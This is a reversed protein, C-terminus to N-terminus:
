SASRRDWFPSGAWRREIGYYGARTTLYTTCEEDRADEYTALATSDGSLAAIATDAAVHATRLARIVGSGSIPDVSLAADGVALWRSQAGDTRVLRQSVASFARPGWRLPGTGVRACTTSALQLARRWRDGDTAVASRVLDGDAMLMAVSRDARVPASYWWGDVTTEVLTYCNDGALPDDIVAAVAVLRDFVERYAGLRTALSAGRGTADIVFGAELPISRDAQLVDLIFRSGDSECNRVRAGPLLQAGAATAAEVLMRDFGLREVHWGQQFPTILHSHEEATCSGWVSRTGYSPLPRLELFAEWVGLDKLLPQVAPALSEGVRPQDFHSREVLVVRCDRSALRRATAAGAPGAGVIAVDFIQSM